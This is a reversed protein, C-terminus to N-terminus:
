GDIMIRPLLQSKGKEEPANFIGQEICKDTLFFPKSRHICHISPYIFSSFNYFISIVVVLISYDM